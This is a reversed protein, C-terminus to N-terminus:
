KAVLVIKWDENELVFTGTPTSITFTQNDILIKNEKIIYAYHGHPVIETSTHLIKGEEDIETVTKEESFYVSDATFQCYVNGADVDLTLNGVRQYAKSIAWEHASIQTKYDIVSSKEANEDSSCASFSFVFLVFVLVQIWAAIRGKILVCHNSALKSSGFNGGGLVSIILRNCIRMGM